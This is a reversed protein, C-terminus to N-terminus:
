MLEGRFTSVGRWTPGCAAACLRECELGEPHNVVAPIQKVGARERSKTGKWGRGLPLGGGKTLNRDEQSGSGGQPFGLLNFQPGPGIRDPSATPLLSLPLLQPVFQIELCLTVPGPEQPLLAATTVHLSPALLVRQHVLEPARPPSPLKFPSM